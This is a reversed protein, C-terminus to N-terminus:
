TASAPKRSPTLWKVNLETESTEFGCGLCTVIRDGPSKYFLPKSCKPCGYGSHVRDNCETTM